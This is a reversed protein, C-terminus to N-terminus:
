RKSREAPVLSRSRDIRGARLELLAVRAMGVSAAEHV